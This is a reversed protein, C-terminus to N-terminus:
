NVFFMIEHSDVVTPERLKRARLKVIDGRIIFEELQHIIVEVVSTTRSSEMLKESVFLRETNDIDPVVAEVM